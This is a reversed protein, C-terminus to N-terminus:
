NEYKKNDFFSKALLVDKNVQKKLEDFNNFKIEERIFTLFEVTLEKGYIERNFNFINVELLVKKGDFTPRRGFNAIGLYKKEALIIKVIYVGKKPNIIDPILINATPFNMERARKDGAQVLGKITWPRGLFKNTDKFNGEEINKRIISSSYVLNSNRFKVSKVINLSFNNKKSLKNLLDINGERNKGFRFNEGIVLSKMKLKNILFINVFDQASLDATIENFILKYYVKIGLSKLITEKDNELLINFNKNIRNFFKSPHPSFSLVTPLLNLKTSEKILKKIIFQHGKHIGDFNGITICLPDTNINSEININRTLM